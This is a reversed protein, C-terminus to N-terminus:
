RQLRYHLFVEQELTEVSLLELRRAQQPSFGAGEVPTPATAGGLILPCVTLWLEDILDAALLSAVLKGGGIVALKQFGLRALKEFADSWDIHGSATEAVIIREFKDSHPQWAKAGTATTLLWRPISQRFFRLQPDINASSSCVIQAPKPPQNQQQSTQSKKSVPAAGGHARLTGAGFLVGDASATQKELHARDSSSSFQTPSREIDSIKGDATMALTVKTRPRSM